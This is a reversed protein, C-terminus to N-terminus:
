LYSVFRSDAGHGAPVGRYGGLGPRSVEFGERSSRIVGARPGRLTQSPQVQQWVRFV